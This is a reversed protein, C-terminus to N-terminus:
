GGEPEAAPEPNCSRSRTSGTRTRVTGLLNQVIQFQRALLLVLGHYGGLGVLLVDTLQHVLGAGVQEPLHLPDQALNFEAVEPRGQITRTTTRRGDVEASPRRTGRPRFTSRFSARCRFSTSSRAHRNRRSGAPPHRGIRGRGPSPRADPARNRSSIPGSTGM